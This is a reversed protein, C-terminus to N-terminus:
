YAGDCFSHFYLLLRVKDLLRANTRPEGCDVNHKTCQERLFRNTADSGLEEGPPFPVGLQKELEEIMDFRKWPTSFDLELLEGEPGTPHYAVKFSGNIHFVLGSILSETLDLLDHFDAYAM